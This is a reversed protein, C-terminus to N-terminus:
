DTYRLRTIYSFYPKTSDAGGNPASSCVVLYLSGTMIDTITAGTSNFTTSKGKLNVGFSGPKQMIHASDVPNCSIRKDALVAFRNRNALSYYADVPYGSQQFLDTASLAVGNPQKDWVLLVRAVASSFDSPSTLVYKISVTNLSIKSGVRQNIATGNAIGNILYTSIVDSAKILSTGSTSSEISKKEVGQINSLVMNPPPIRNVVKRGKRKPFVYRRVSRLGRNIEHIGSGLESIIGHTNRRRYSM